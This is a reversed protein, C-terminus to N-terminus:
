FVNPFPQGHVVLSWTNLFQRYDFNSYSIRGHDIVTSGILTAFNGEFLNQAKQQADTISTHLQTLGTQDVIKQHNAIQDNWAIKYSNMANALTVIADMKAKKEEAIKELKKKNLWAITNAFTFKVSNWPLDKVAGGFIVILIMWYIPVDKLDTQLFQLQESFLKFIYEM